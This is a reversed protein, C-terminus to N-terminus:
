RIGVDREVPVPVVLTALEGRTGRPTTRDLVLHVRVAHPLRLRKRFTWDDKWEEGDFYSLELERIGELREVEGSRRRQSDTQLWGLPFVELFVGEEDQGLHLSATTGPGGPPRYDSTTFRLDEEDGRFDVDDDVQQYPQVGLLALRLRHLLITHRRDEDFAREALHAVRRAQSFLRHTAVMLGSLLGAALMLEMLTFGGRQRM